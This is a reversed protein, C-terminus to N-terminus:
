LDERATDPAIGTLETATDIYQQCSDLMQDIMWDSRFRQLDEDTFYDDWLLKGLDTIRGNVADSAAELTGFEPQYIVTAMGLLFETEQPRAPPKESGSRWSQVDSEMLHVLACDVLHNGLEDNMPIPPPENANIAPSMGTLGILM